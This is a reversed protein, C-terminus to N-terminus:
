KKRKFSPIGLRDLRIEGSALRPITNFHNYISIEHNSTSVGVNALRAAVKNAERYCHAFHTADEVMDWIQKVERRIMWPCQLRRQLIGVLVLSDVQISVNTFGKQNCLRLGTLLALAEARLSSTEGFYVSFALLPTGLSDRLIGGGGSLGPNGKSCGDTNLTLLGAEKARWGVLQFTYDTPPQATWENLQPFTQVARRQNCQFEVVAKVDLLIDHCIRTVRM